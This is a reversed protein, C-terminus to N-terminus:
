FKLVTFRDFKTGGEVLTLRREMDFIIRIFLYNFDFLAFDKGTITDTMFKYSMGAKGSKENTGLLLYGNFDKKGLVIDRVDDFKEALMFDKGHDLCMLEFGIKYLSRALLKLRTEDMKRNGRFNLKFGETTQDTINKKSKLDLKIHVRDVNRMTINHLNSVPIKGKKSEIGNFTRLFKIGEFELLEEDLRALIENNCKDCIIGKPLIKEKNGLSEPFIHEASLFSNDVSRCFLCQNSQSKMYSEIIVRYNFINVVQEISLISVERKMISPM